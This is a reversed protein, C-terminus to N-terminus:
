RYSAFVETKGAQDFAIVDFPQAPQGQVEMGPSGIPMGPVALGAVGAPREALLRNIEQVPVHGEIIYGDVIATHCSQLPAPVQSVAQEAERSEFDKATVPFGNQEMYAM